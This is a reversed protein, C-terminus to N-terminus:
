FRYIVSVRHSQGVGSLFASLGWDLRLNSIELSSGVTLSRGNYGARLGIGNFWIETGLHPVIGSYEAEILAAIPSELDALINWEVDENVAPSISIGVRIKREWEEEHNAGYSLGGTLLNEAMVGFGLGEGRVLIAPDLSWGFGDSTGELSLHSYYYKVNGGVSLQSIIPLGFGLVGDNSLYTFSNGTDAGFENPVAISGSYLLSTNIGFYRGAFGIGGYDLLGFQPSWLSTVGYGDLFALAAPNYYVANADDALGIFAGGMGMPRAGKGLGVLAGVNSFEEQGVLVPSVTCVLLLAITIIALPERSVKVSVEM